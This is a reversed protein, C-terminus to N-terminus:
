YYGTTNINQINHIEIIFTDNSTNNCFGRCNRPGAQTSQRSHSHNITPNTLTRFSVTVINLTTPARQESADM